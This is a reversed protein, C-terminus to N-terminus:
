FNDEKEEFNDSFESSDELSTILSNSLSEVSKKM